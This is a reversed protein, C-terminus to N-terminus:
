CRQCGWLTQVLLRQCWLGFPSHRTSPIAVSAQRAPNMPQKAGLTGFRHLSSHRSCFLQTMRQGASVSAIDAVPTDGTQVARRSRPMAEEHVLPVSHRTSHTLQLHVNCLRRDQNNPVDPATIGDTTFCQMAAVWMHIRSCYVCVRYLRVSRQAAPAIIHRPSHVSMHIHADSSKTEQM